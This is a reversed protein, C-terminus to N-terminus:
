GTAQNPYKVEESLFKMLAENGNKFTPYVDADIKYPFVTNEDWCKDAANVKLDNEEAPNQCAAFLISLIAFLIIKTKMIRNKLKSILV